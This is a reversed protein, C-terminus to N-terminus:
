SGPNSLTVFLRSGLISNASALSSVLSNIKPQLTIIILLIIIICRMAKQIVDKVVTNGGFCSQLFLLGKVPLLRGGVFAPM